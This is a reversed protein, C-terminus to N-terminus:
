FEEEFALRMEGFEERTLPKDVFEIQRHVNVNINDIELGMVKALKGLAAVRSGANGSIFDNAERWLGAVVHDRTVMSGAEWKDLARGVARQVYSCREMRRWLAVPDSAGVRSAARIGNFDKIFESVFANRLARASESLATGESWKKMQDWCDDPDLEVDVIENETGDKITLVLGAEKLAKAVSKKAIKRKPSATSRQPKQKANKLWSPKPESM